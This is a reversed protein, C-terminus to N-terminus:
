ERKMRKMPTHKERHTPLPTAADIVKMVVSRHADTRVTRYGVLASPEDTDVLLVPPMLGGIKASSAVIEVNSAGISEIVRPSLQQNGRGLLFGQGGVVGLVLRPKAARTVIRFLREEDVDLEVTGAPHRVDVGRLTATFGLVSAVSRFLM